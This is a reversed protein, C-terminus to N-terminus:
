PQLHNSWDMNYGADNARNIVERSAKKLARISKGHKCYILGEWRAILIAERVTTISVGLKEAMKPIAPLTVEGSDIADHCLKFIYKLTMTHTEPM